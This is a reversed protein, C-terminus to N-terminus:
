LNIGVERKFLDRAAYAAEINLHFSNRVIWDAMKVCYQAWKADGSSFMRLEVTKKNTTNVAGYRSSVRETPNCYENPVRGFLDSFQETSLSKIWRRVAAAKKETFWDRNVHVHIGCSKNHLWAGVRKELRTIEKCLWAAPLPQSVLEFPSQDWHDTRISGDSSVYFFGIYDSRYLPRSDESNFFCEIEIGYTKAVDPKRFENLSQM